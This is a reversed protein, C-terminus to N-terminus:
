ANAAQGERKAKVQRFEFLGAHQSNLLVFLHALTAGILSFSLGLARRVRGYFTSAPSLPPPMHRAASKTM